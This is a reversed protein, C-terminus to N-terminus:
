YLLHIDARQRRVVRASWGVYHNSLRQKPWVSSIKRSPSFLRTQLSPLPPSSFFKADVLKLTLCFIYQKILVCSSPFGFCFVNKSDFTGVSGIIFVSVFVWLLVDMNVFRHLSTDVCTDKSRNMMTQRRRMRRRRRTRSMVTLILYNNLINHNNSFSPSQTFTM